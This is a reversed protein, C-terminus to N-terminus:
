QNRPVVLMVRQLFWLFSDKATRGLHCGVQKQASKRDGNRINAMAVKGSENLELCSTEKRQWRNMVTTLEHWAKTEITTSRSAMPMADL